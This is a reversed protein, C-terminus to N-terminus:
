GSHEFGATQFDGEEFKVGVDVDVGARHTRKLVAFHEDSVVPRLRVQIQAVILAECAGHHAARIVERSAPHIVGHQAFLPAAVVQTARYLNDRVNGVLDFPADNFPGTVGLHSHNLDTASGSVDLTLGEKLCDTLELKFQATCVRQQHM